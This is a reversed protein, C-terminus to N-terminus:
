SKLCSSSTRRATPTPLGPTPTVVVEVKTEQVVTAIVQVTEKVPVVQTQVETVIKEKEVIVTEIVTQVQPPPAPCATLVMAVVVLLGITIWLKGKM